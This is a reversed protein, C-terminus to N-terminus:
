FVVSGVGGHGGGVTGMGAAVEARVFQVFTETRARELADIAGGEGAVGGRAERGDDREGDRVLLIGLADFEGPALKLSATPEVVRGDDAGEGEFM